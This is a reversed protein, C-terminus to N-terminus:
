LHKVGNGCNPMADSRHLQCSTIMFFIFM